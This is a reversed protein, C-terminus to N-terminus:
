CLRALSQMTQHVPTWRKWFASSIPSLTFHYRSNAPLKRSDFKIRARKITKALIFQRIHSTTQVDKLTIQTHMNEGVFTYVDNFVGPRHAMEFIFKGTVCFKINNRERRLVGRFDHM